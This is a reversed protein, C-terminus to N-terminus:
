LFIKFEFFSVTGDNNIDIKEFLDKESLHIIEKNLKNRIETILIM